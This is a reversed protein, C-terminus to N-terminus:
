ESFGVDRCFREVSLTDPHNANAKKMARLLELCGSKASALGDPGSNREFSQQLQLLRAKFGKFLEDETINYDASRVAKGALADNVARVMDDQRKTDTKWAEPSPPQTKAAPQEGCGLSFLCVSALLTVRM